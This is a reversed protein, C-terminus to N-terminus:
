GASLAPERAFEAILEATRAPQDIPTFTLSDEVMELRAGPIERALREALPLKFFRDEATWILLVPIRLQPFGKAARLTHEPRMNTLIQAVERRIAPNVRIPRAWSATLADDARRTVGGYGTPLRRAFAARMTQAILWLVAKSRGVTAMAKFARPPFDEYADCPTLVLRGIREPHDVVVLQCIAGGTDNGVLTVNELELAALFDAVLRALGPPSLDAGQELPLEQSGLPWDPTIVRFDKALRPAVDRWLQGNALLGHVLVITEGSGEDRYRIPGQALRIEKTESM